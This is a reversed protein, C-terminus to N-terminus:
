STNFSSLLCIHGGVIKRKLTCM